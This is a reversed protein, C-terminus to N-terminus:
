TQFSLSTRMFTWKTAGVNPLHHIRIIHLLALLYLKSIKLVTKILGKSLQNKSRGKVSQFHRSNCQWHNFM